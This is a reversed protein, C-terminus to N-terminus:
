LGYKERYAVLLNVMKSYGLMGDQQRNAKLYNDYFLKFFPELKNQYGEWFQQSEKINKLVGQPIRKIIEKAAISDQFSLASVSYRIALLNASYNFYPDENACAAMYGIFNAESESAIGLQHAMEHSTIMPLNVSPVLSNVQAENTLPNLYGSFGMFSLPIRFMSKKVSPTLLTFHPFHDALNEFGNTAKILIEENEYPTVVPLSDHKTLTAHQSKLQRLVDENLAILEATTYPRATLHMTTFLSNRYYNMGWLLHFLFYFVSLYAGFRYLYALYEKRGKKIMRYAGRIFLVILFGYLIDGVSFPIWGFVIRLFSSISPYIGNSYWNEILNNHNGIFNVLLIQVVLGLTLIQNVSRKKM